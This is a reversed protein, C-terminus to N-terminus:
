FTQLYPGLLREAIEQSLPAYHDLQMTFSGRGSTMSRLATAYGLM